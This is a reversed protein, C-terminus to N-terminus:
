DIYTTIEPEVTNHPPIFHLILKGVPISQNNSTHRKRIEFEAFSRQSYYLPVLALLILLQYQIM